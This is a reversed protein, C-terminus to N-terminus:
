TIHKRLCTYEKRTTRGSCATSAGVCTPIVSIKDPVYRRSFLISTIIQYSLYIWKMGELLWHFEGQASFGSLLSVSSKSRRRRIRLRICRRFINPKELSRISLIHVSTKRQTDKATAWIKSNTTVLLYSIFLCWQTRTSAWSSGIKPYKKVRSGSPKLPSWYWLYIKAKFQKVHVIYKARKIINPFININRFEPTNLLSHAFQTM